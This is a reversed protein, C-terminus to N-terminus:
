VHGGKGESVALHIDGIWWTFVVPSIPQGVQWQQMEAQLLLKLAVLCDLGGLVSGWVMLFRLIQRQKPAMLGLSSCPMVACCLSIDPTELKTVRCCNKKYLAFYWLSQCQYCVICTFLSWSLCLVTNLMPFSFNNRQKGFIFIFQSRPFPPSKKNLQLRFCKLLFM